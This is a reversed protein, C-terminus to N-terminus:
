AEVLAADPADARAADLEPDGTTSPREASGAPPSVVVGANGTSTTAPLMNTTLPARHFRNALFQHPVGVPATASAWDTHPDTRRTPKCAPAWGSPTRRDDRPSWTSM